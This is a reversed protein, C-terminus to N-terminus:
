PLRVMQTFLSLNREVVGMIMNFHPNLLWPEERHKGYYPNRFLTKWTEESYFSKHDLDQFALQSKFYPVLLTVTGGPILVRQFERLMQIAQEGTLHELVHFAFIATVTGDADPLPDVAFNYEPFDYGRAGPVPNNGCGIEIANTMNPEILQPVDRKLGLKVFHQIDM